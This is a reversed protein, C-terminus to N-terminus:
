NLVPYPVQKLWATARTLSNEPISRQERKLSEIRIATRKRQSGRRDKGRQTLILHADHARGNVTKSSRDDRFQRTLHFEAGNHQPSERVGNIPTRDIVERDNV